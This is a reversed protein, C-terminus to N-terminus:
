VVSKRDKDILMRLLAVSDPGGSLAVLFIGSQMGCTDSVEMIPSSMVSHKSM